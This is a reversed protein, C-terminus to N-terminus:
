VPFRGCMRCFGSARHGCDPCGGPVREYSLGAKSFERYYYLSEKSRIRVGGALAERAGAAFEADSIQSELLGAIASTGAGDQMPAKPRQLISEPLAGAFAERLAAKGRGGRVHLRPPVAAAARVVAPDMFPACAGMGMSGAIQGAPFRMGAALRRMKAPLEQPDSRELFGYGAFIEDAGDGTLLGASGSEMAGEFLLYMAAMNRIEIDNFSRLVVATRGAARLVDGGGARVTRHAIGLHEAAEKAFGADPAGCADLTYGVPGRGRACWAVISSDLGGSLAVDLPACRGAASEVARRVAEM